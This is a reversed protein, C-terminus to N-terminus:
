KAVLRGDGVRRSVSDTTARGPVSHNLNVLPTASIAGSWGAPACLTRQCKGPRGGAIEDKPCTGNLLGVPGVCAIVKTKKEEICYLV